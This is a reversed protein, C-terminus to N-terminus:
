GHDHGEHGEEGHDHGEHGEAELKVACGKCYWKGDHETMQDEPWDTMGCGGACDHRAVVPEEAKKQACAACMMADGVMKAEKADLEAECGACKAAEAKEATCGAALALGLLLLATGALLVIRRM